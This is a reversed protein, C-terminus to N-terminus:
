HICNTVCIEASMPLQDLFPRFGEKGKRDRIYGICPYTTRNRLTMICIYSCIKKLMTQKIVFCQYFRGMKAEVYEIGYIDTMIQPIKILKFNKRLITYNPTYIFTIPEFRGWARM